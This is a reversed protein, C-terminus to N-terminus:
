KTEKRLKAAKRARKAEAAAMRDRDQQTLEKPQEGYPKLKFRPERELMLREIPSLDPMPPLEPHRLVVRAGEYSFRLADLSHRYSPGGALIVVREADAPREFTVDIGQAKFDKVIGEFLVEDDSLITIRTETM